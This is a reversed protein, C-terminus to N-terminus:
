PLFIVALLVNDFKCFSSVKSLSPINKSLMYVINYKRILWLNAFQYLMHWYFTYSDVEPWSKKRIIKSASMEIGMYLLMMLIQLFIVPLLGAILGYQFSSEDWPKLGVSTLIGNLNAMSTVFSVPLAWFCVGVTWMISVLMQSHRQMNISVPVNAWIVGTPEPAAFTEMNDVKGSLECQVATQKARLSVFTVFASSSMGQKEENSTEAKTWLSERATDIEKNLRAIEEGYYEIANVKTGGCCGSKVNTKVMPIPKNPKANCFTDAEEYALICKQREEVLKDLDTTDMCVSVQRVKGPFLREFYEYLAENSRLTKPINEVLVAYRFDPATDVDGKALFEIRREAYHEWELWIERLVVVVFLIWSIAPAWLRNSGKELNGMTVSNFEETSPGTAHGTMYIFILLGCGLFAGFSTVRFGLRLFRLYMYSDLGVCRLLEDNPISLVSRIWGFCGGHVAGDNNEGGWAPPSRHGRTLHRKEYIDLSKAKMEKRRFYLFLIYYVVGQALSVLLTVWVPSWGVVVEKSSTPSPTPASSTENFVAM